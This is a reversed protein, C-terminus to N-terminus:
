IRKKLIKAATKNGLIFFVFLVIFLCLRFLAAFAVISTILATLRPFRSASCSKNPGPNREPLLM